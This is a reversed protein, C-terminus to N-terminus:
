IESIPRAIKLSKLRDLGDKEIVKLGMERLRGLLAELKWWPPEPLNYGYNDAGIEIISPHLIKVWTVMEELDFDMIPEISLFKAPHTFRSLYDVRKIPSPAKSLGYDRNTELTTGLMVQSPLTIARDMWWDWLQKPNKTQILFRTQPFDMIRTLIKRFEELTAFAIDGMFAVFVFQGPRFSRRLEEEVLHPEFGDRYRPNKIM